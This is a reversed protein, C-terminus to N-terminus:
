AGPELYERRFADCRKAIEPLDNDEMREKRLLKRAVRRGRFTVTEVRGVRSARFLSPDLDCGLAQM